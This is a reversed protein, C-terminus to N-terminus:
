PRVEQKAFNDAEDDRIPRLKGPKFRGNGDPCRRFWKTPQGLQNQPQTRHDAWPFGCGDCISRDSRVSAVLNQPDVSFLGRGDPCRGLGTIEQHHDRRLHGCQCLDDDLRINLRLKANCANPPVQSGGDGSRSVTELTPNKM